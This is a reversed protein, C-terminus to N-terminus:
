PKEMFLTSNIRYAIISGSPIYNRKSLLTLKERNSFENDSEPPTISYVRYGRLAFLVNMYYYHLHWFLFIICVLAVIMASFDRWSDINQRYFPLLVAFLYVLVHGRHDAVDGIMLTRTVNSRRVIIERVILLSTPIIALMCCVIFFVWNLVPAHPLDLGRIAWLSFLPALSSLVMLLRLLKLSEQGVMEISM